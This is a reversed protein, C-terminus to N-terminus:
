RSKFENLHSISLRMHVCTSHHTINYTDYLNLNMHRGDRYTIAKNYYKYHDRRVVFLRRDVMMKVRVFYKHCIHKKCRWINGRAESIKLKASSILIFVENKKQCDCSRASFIYWKPGTNHLIRQNCKEQMTPPLFRAFSSFKLFASRNNGYHRVYFRSFLIAHM